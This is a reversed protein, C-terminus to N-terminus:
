QMKHPQTVIGNALQMERVYQIIAQLDAESVQPQAPMNGFPWHHQRVGNKAALYFARDSHHGPNYINNVFPPGKETGAANVGHCSACNKDFVVKGDKALATLEPIVVDARVSEMRPDILDLFYIAVAGILVVLVIIKPLNSSFKM